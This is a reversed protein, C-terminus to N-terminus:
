HGNRGATRRGGPWGSSLMSSTRVSSPAMRNWATAVSSRVWNLTVFIFPITARVTLTIM